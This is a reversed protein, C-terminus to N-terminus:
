HTIITVVKMIFLEIDSFNPIQYCLYKSTKTFQQQIDLTSLKM